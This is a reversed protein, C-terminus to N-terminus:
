NFVFSSYVSYLRDSSYSLHIAEILKLEDYMIQMITSSNSQQKRSNGYQPDMNCKYSSFTQRKTEQELMFYGM